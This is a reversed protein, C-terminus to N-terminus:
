VSKRVAPATTTSGFPWSRFPWVQENFQDIELYCRVLNLEWPSLVGKMRQLLLTWYIFRDYSWTPCGWVWAWLHIKGFVRDLVCHPIKGASAQNSQCLGDAERSHWVSSRNRYREWTHCLSISDLVAPPLSGTLTVSFFLSPRHLGMHGDWYHLRMLLKTGYLSRVANSHLWCRGRRSTSDVLFDQPFQGCDSTTLMTLYGESQFVYATRGASAKKYTSAWNCMAPASIMVATCAWPKQEQDVRQRAQAYLM